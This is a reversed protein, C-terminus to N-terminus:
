RAAELEAHREIDRKADRLHDLHRTVTYGLLEEAQAPTHRSAEARAPSTIYAHTAAIQGTNRGAQEQTALFHRAM